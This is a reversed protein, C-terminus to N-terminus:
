SSPKMRQLLNGTLKPGDINTQLQDAIGSVIAKTNKSLPAFKEFGGIGAKAAAAVNNNGLNKLLNSGSEGIDFIRDAISGAGTSEVIENVVPIKKIFDRIKRGGDVFTNLIKGGTNMAPKIFTNFGDKVKDYASSIWSGFRNFITM